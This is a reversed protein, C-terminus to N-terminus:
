GHHWSTKLHLADSLFGGQGGMLVVPVGQLDSLHLAIPESKLSLRGEADHEEVEGDVVLLDFGVLAEPTLERGPVFVVRATHDALFAQWAASYPTGSNGAYLVALPLREPEPSQRALLAVLSLAVLTASM